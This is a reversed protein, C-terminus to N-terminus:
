KVPCPFAVRLAEIVFRAGAWHLHEPHDDGYKAVVQALQLVSVGHDLCVPFQSSPEAVWAGGEVVGQIYSACMLVNMVETEPMVQGTPRAKVKCDATVDAGTKGFNIGSEKQASVPVTLCYGLAVAVLASKM